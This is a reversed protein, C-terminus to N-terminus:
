MGKRKEKKREGEMESKRGERKEEEREKERSTYSVPWIITNMRIALPHVIVLSLKAAM